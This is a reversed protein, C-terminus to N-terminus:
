KLASPPVFSTACAGTNARIAAMPLNFPLKWAGPFVGADGAGLPMLSACAALCAETRRAILLWRVRPCKRALISGNPM